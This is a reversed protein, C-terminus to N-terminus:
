EEVQGYTFRVIDGEEFPESTEVVDVPDFQPFGHENEYSEGEVIEAIGEGESVQFEVIVGTAVKEPNSQELRMEVDGDWSTRRGGDADECGEGEYCFRITGVDDDEAFNGQTVELEGDHTRELMVALGNVDSGPGTGNDSCSTITFLLAFLLLVPVVHFYRM